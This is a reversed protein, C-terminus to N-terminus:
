EYYLFHNDTLFFKIVFTVNIKLAYFWIYLMSKAKNQFYYFFLNLMRCYFKKPLSNQTCFIIKLSIMCIMKLIKVILDLNDWKKPGNELSAISVKALSFAKNQKQFVLWQKHWMLPWDRRDSQSLIWLTTVSRDKFHSVRYMHNDERDIEVTQTGM